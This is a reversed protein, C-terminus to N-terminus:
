KKAFPMLVTHNVLFQAFNGDRILNLLGEAKPYIQHYLLNHISSKLAKPHELKTHIVKLDEPLNEDSLEDALMLLNMNFEILKEEYSPKEDNLDSRFKTTIKQCCTLLEDDIKAVERSYKTLIKTEEQVLLSIRDNFNQAANDLKEISKASLVANLCSEVVEKDAKSELNSAIKRLQKALDAASERKFNFFGGLSKDEIESKREGKVRQFVDTALLNNLLNLRKVSKNTITAALEKRSSLNQKMLDKLEQYLPEEKVLRLENSDFQSFFANLYKTSSTFKEVLEDSQNSNIEEMYQIMTELSRQLHTFHPLDQSITFINMQTAQIEILGSNEEKDTILKEFLTAAKELKLKVEKSIRSDRKRISDQQHELKITLQNIRERFDSLRKKVIPHEPNKIEDLLDRGKEIIGGDATFAKKFDQIFKKAKKEDTESQGQFVSDIAQDIIQTLVKKSYKKLKEQANQNKLQQLNVREQDNANPTLIIENLEELLLSLPKQLQDKKFLKDSAMISTNIISDLIVPILNADILQQSQKSLSSDKLNRQLQEQTNFKNKSLVEFLLEFLTKLQSHTKDSIINKDDVMLDSSAAETPKSLSKSISELQDAFFSTIPYVYPNSEFVNEKSSEVISDIVKNNALFRKLLSKFLANSLKEFCILPSNILTAPFGILLYKLSVGIINIVKRPFTTRNKLIPQKVFSYIKSAITLDNESDKYLDIYNAVFKDSVKKYLQDQSYSEEKGFELFGKEKMLSGIVKNKEGGEKTEAWSKLLSNYKSLCNSTRQFLVEKNITEVRENVDDIIHDVLSKTYKGIIKYFIPLLFIITKKLFWNCKSSNIEKKLESAFVKQKDRDLSSAELTKINFFTQSSIGTLKSILQHTLQDKLNKCLKEKEKKVKETALAENTWDFGAENNAKSSDLAARINEVTKDVKEVKENRSQIEEESLFEPLEFGSLTVIQNHYNELFNSIAQKYDDVSSAADLGQKLDGKIKEFLEKGEDSQKEIWKNIFSSDLISILSNSLFQAYSTPISGVNLQSLVENFSDVIFNSSQKSARNSIEKELFACTEQIFISQDPYTEQKYQYGKDVAVESGSALVLGLLSQIDDINTEIWDDVSTGDINNQICTKFEPHTFYCSKLIHKLLDAKYEKGELKIAEFLAKFPARSSPKTLFINPLASKVLAAPNPIAAWKSQSNIQDTIIREAEEVLRFYSTNSNPDFLYPLLTPSLTKADKLKDILENISNEQDSSLPKKYCAPEKIELFLTLKNILQTLNADSSNRLMSSLAAQTEELIPHTLNDKTVRSHSGWHYNLLSLEKELTLCIGNANDLDNSKLYSQLQQILTRTRSNITSNHLFEYRSLLTSLELKNQHTINKYSTRLCEILDITAKKQKEDIAGIIPLSSLIYKKYSFPPDQNAQANRTPQAFLLNRIFGLM